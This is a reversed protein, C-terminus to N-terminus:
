IPTIYQITNYQVTVTVGVLAKGEADCGGVNVNASRRIRLSAFCMVDYEDQITQDQSSWLARSLDLGCRSMCCFAHMWGASRGFGGGKALCWCRLFFLVCM